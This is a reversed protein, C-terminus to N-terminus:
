QKKLFRKIEKGVKKPSELIISHRLNKLIVLKSNKIKKSIKKNLSPSCGLDQEGTMILCPIRVQMLWNEMRTDAYIKFVNLFIKLNTEKLQKIRQQIIKNNENKFNDTFWRKILDHLVSDLGKKRIKNIIDLIKKEQKLTRFAATSLITLTLVKDKYKKSYLPGIMGGLSHGVLHIKELKLKKRLKELDEVLDELSFNANKTKSEGHGRLDYTICQYKEKLIEIVNKWVKKNSGIGHIFIIPDGKGYVKYFTKLKM